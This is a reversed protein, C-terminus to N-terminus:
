NKRLYRNNYIFYFLTVFQVNKMQSKNNTIIQILFLKKGKKAKWKKSVDREQIKM